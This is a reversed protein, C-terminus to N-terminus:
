SKAPAAHTRIKSKESGGVHIDGMMGADYHGPVNCAFELDMAKTFTLIIESSKGPELLVSNPDNHAMMRGGGMNMNMTKRNIKDAELVGHEVMMMMEKQHGIHMKATGVNFEHVLEGQNVIKFRITEGAKIEIAEPEFFNEKMVIDITRSVESAKGPKGFEFGHGGGHAGAAYSSGVGLAATALVSTIAAVMKAAWPNIM